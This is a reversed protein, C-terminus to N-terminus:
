LFYECNECDPKGNVYRAPYCSHTKDTCQKKSEIVIPIASKKIKSEAFDEAINACQAAIINPNPNTAFWKEFAKILEKREPIDFLKKQEM